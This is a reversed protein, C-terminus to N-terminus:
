AAAVCTIAFAGASLTASRNGIENLQAQGGIWSGDRNGRDRSIIYVTWRFVWGPDSASRSAGHHAGGEYM